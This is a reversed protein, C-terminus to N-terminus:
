KLSKKKFAFSWYSPLSHGPQWFRRYAKLNNFIIKRILFLNWSQFLAEYHKASASILFMRVDLHLSISSVRTLGQATIKYSTPVWEPSSGPCGSEYDSNIVVISGVACQSSPQNISQVSVENCYWWQLIHKSHNLWANALHCIVARSKIQCPSPPRVKIGNCSKLHSDLFSRKILFVGSKRM